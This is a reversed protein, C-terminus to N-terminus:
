SAPGDSGGECCRCDGNCSASAEIVASKGCSPCVPPDPVDWKFPRHCNRCCYVNESFLISGGSIELVTGEVLFSAMKKRARSILRTFTPRSVGMIAAAEGHGYGLKDALRIAEFEDLRIITKGTKQEVRDPGFRFVRPPAEV